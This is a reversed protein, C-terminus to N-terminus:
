APLRDRLLDVGDGDLADVGARRGTMSLLIASGPGQVKPGAGHAWDVDTAVLRLGEIRKKAGM